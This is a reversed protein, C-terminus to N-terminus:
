DLFDWLVPSHKVVDRSLKKGIIEELHKPKIGFGPRIVRVDCEEIEEGTMMKDFYSASASAQTKPIEWFVVAGNDTLADMAKALTTKREAKDVLFFM